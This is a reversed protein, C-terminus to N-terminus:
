ALRNVSVSESWFRRHISEPLLFLTFTLRDRIIEAADIGDLEGPLRVDMLMIDPKESEAAEIASAGDHCITICQVGHSEVLEYLQRSIIFEDDVIVVRPGSPLNKETHNISM